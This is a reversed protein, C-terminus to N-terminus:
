TVTSTELTYKSDNMKNRSLQTSSFEFKLPAPSKDDFSIIIRLVLVTQDM